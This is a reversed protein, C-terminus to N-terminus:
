LYFAEEEEKEEEKKKKEIITNSHLVKCKHPLHEVLKVLQAM